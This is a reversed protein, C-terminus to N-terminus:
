VDEEGALLLVAYACAAGSHIPGWTEALRVIKGGPELIRDALREALFAGAGSLVASRPRLALARRAASELRDLLADGAASAFQNADDQTFLERDAGVVRALRDRAADLTM